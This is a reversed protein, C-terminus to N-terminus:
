FLVRDVAPPPPYSVKKILALLQFPFSDWLFLMLDLIVGRRLWGEAAEFLVDFLVVRHLCFAHVAVPALKFLGGYKASVALVSLLKALSARLQPPLFALFPEAADDADEELVVACLIAVENRFLIVPAPVPLSDGKDRLQLVLNSEEKLAIFLEQHEVNFLQARPHIVLILFEPQERVELICSQQVGGEAFHNRNLIQKRQPSFAALSKM